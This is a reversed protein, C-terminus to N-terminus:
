FLLFGLTKEKLILISGFVVQIMSQDHYHHLKYFSNNKVCLRIYVYMKHFAHWHGLTVQYYHVCECQCACFLAYIM